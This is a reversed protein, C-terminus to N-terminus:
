ENSQEGEMVELLEKLRHTDSFDENIRNNSLQETRLCAMIWWIFYVATLAVWLGVADPFPYVAVTDPFADVWESIPGTSM